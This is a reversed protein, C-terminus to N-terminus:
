KNAIRWLLYLVDRAINCILVNVIADGAIILFVYFPYPLSKDHVLSVLLILLAILGCIIFVVFNFIGIGNLWSITFPKPIEHNEQSHEAPKEEKKIVPKKLAASLKKLLGVAAEKKQEAQTSNPPQSPTYPNFHIEFWKKCSQCEITKGYYDEGVQYKQNCHPCYVVKM